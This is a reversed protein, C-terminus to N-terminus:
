SSCLELLDDVTQKHIRLTRKTPGLPLLWTYRLEEGFVDRFSAYISQRVGVHGKLKDIYPTNESIANIQDFLMIITFLGFVIAEIFNLVLLVIGIPNNELCIPLPRRFGMHGSRCTIFQCILAVFCTICCLATYFIFLLFLKQNFMAVCNNVWPCHHDMRIICHGCDRCHHASAPKVSKCRSCTMEVKAVVVPRKLEESKVEDMESKVPPVKDKSISGPDRFQCHTHSVVALLSIMTYFLMQPSLLGLWLGLGYKAQVCFAFILLAITMNACVLGCCDTTVWWM